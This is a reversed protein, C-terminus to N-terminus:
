CLNTGEMMSEFQLATQGRMVLVFVPIGFNLAFLSNLM